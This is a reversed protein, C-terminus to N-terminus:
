MERADTVAFDPTRRARVGERCELEVLAPRYQHVDQLYSGGSPHRCIRPTWFELFEKLYGPRKMMQATVTRHITINQGVINKLIRQYTAPARRLGHEPQLGDISVAVTLGALDAWQAPIQRFASTVAQVRVGRSLLLPLMTQLERYRVLLDGGKLRIAAPDPQVAEAYRRAPCSDSPASNSFLTRSRMRSFDMLSYRPRVAVSLTSFGHFIALAGDGERDRNPLV